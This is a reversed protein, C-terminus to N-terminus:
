SWTHSSQLIASKLALQQTQKESPRGVNALKRHRAMDNWHRASLLYRGLAQPGLHLGPWTACLQACLLQIAHLCLRKQQEPSRRGRSPGGEWDGPGWCAGCKQSRKMNSTKRAVQLRSLRLAPARRSWGNSQGRLGEPGLCHNCIQHSVSPRASLTSTREAGGCRTWETHWHSTPPKQRPWQRLQQQCITSRHRRQQQRRAHGVEFLGGAHPPPFVAQNGRLSSSSTAPFLNRTLLTM